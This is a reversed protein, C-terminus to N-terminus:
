TTDGAAFGERAGEKKWCGSEAGKHCCGDGAGRKVCASGGGGGRGDRGGCEKQCGADGRVGSGHLIDLM